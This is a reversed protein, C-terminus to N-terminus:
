GEPFAGCTGHILGDRRLSIRRLMRGEQEIIGGIGADWMQWGDDAVQEWWSKM